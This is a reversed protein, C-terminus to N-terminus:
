LFWFILNLLLLFEKLTKKLDIILLLYNFIFDL